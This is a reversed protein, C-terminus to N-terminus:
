SAYKSTHPAVDLTESDVVSTLSFITVNRPFIRLNRLALFLIAVYNSIAQLDLNWVTGHEQKDALIMNFISPLASLELLCRVELKVSSSTRQKNSSTFSLANNLSSFLETVTLLFCVSQSCIAVRMFALPIVCLGVCFTFFFHDSKRNLAVRRRLLSFFCCCCFFLCVFLCVFFRCTAARRGFDRTNFAFLM